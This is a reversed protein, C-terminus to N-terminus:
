IYRHQSEGYCLDDLIRKLNPDTTRPFMLFAKSMVYAKAICVQVKLNELQGTINNLNTIVTDFRSIDHHQLEMVHHLCTNIVSDVSISVDTAPQYQRQLDMKVKTKSSTVLEQASSSITGLLLTSSDKSTRVASAELSQVEDDTSHSSTRPFFESPHNCKITEILHMIEYRKRNIALGTFWTKYKNQIINPRTDVWSSQLFLEAYHLIYIGCRKSSLPQHPILPAIFPM